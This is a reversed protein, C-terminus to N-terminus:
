LNFPKGCAECITGDTWDNNQDPTVTIAQEIPFQEIGKTQCDRSCYWHVAVAELKESEGIPELEYIVFASM